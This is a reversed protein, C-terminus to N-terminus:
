KKEELFSAIAKQLAQPHESWYKIISDKTPMSVSDKLTFCILSDRFRGESLYKQTLMEYETWNTILKKDADSLETNDKKTTCCFFIISLAFGTITIRGIQM